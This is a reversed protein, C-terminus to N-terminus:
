FASCVHSSSDEDILTDLVGCAKMQLAECDPHTIMTMVIAQMGGIDRTAQQNQDDDLAFNWLAYCWGGQVSASQLRSQMTQIVALNGGCYAIRSCNDKDQALEALQRIGAVVDTDSSDSNCIQHVLEPICTMLTDHQDEDEEGESDESETTQTDDQDVETDLMSDEGDESDKGQVPDNVGVMDNSYIGEIPIDKEKPKSDDIRASQPEDKETRKSEDINADEPKFECPNASAGQPKDEEERIPKSSGFDVASVRANLKDPTIKKADLEKTLRRPSFPTHPLTQTQDDYELIPAEKRKHCGTSPDEPAHNDDPSVALVFHLSPM